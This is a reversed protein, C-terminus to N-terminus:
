ILLSHFAIVRDGTKPPPSHSAPFTGTSNSLFDSAYSFDLIIPPIDTKEIHFVSSPSYDDTIKVVKMENKCCGEPMSGKKCCCDQKLLSVSQLKYGCFHSNITMGMASALFIATLFISFVKKM